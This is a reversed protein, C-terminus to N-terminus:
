EFAWTGTLTPAPKEQSPAQGSAAADAAASKKGSWEGSGRGGFDATGKMTDGDVAGSMIIKMAGNPTQISMEISVAKEKLTVDAPVQGLQSSIVGTLKDAERKVTLTAPTSGQSTGISLDWKGTIDPSQGLAPVAFLVLAILAPLTRKM